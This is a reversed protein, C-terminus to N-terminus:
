AEADGNIRSACRSCPNETFAQYTIRETPRTQLWRGDGECLSARNITLHGRGPRNQADAIVRRFQVEIKVPALM